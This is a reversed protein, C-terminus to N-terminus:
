LTICPTKCLKEFFLNSNFGIQTLAKEIAKYQQPNDAKNIELVRNEILAIVSSQMAAENLIVESHSAIIIQSNVEAAVNNLLKFIQRQRIIELHADPEDLLLITSPHAYMYALLLLTQQFGRGAASIERLHGNEKYKLQLLGTNQLEPTQLEIGFAAKLHEVLRQWSSTKKDLDNRDIDQQLIDLCINRLVESTRGEGLKRLISGRTLRDEELSLGALVQVFGFRVVSDTRLLKELIEHGNKIEFSLSERNEHKFVLTSLWNEGNVEGEVAIEIFISKANETEITADLWLDKTDFIPSNVVDKRNITLISNEQKEANEINNLYYTRVGIEWLCLAQLMSTKGSNNPGVIVVANSLNFSIDDLKKLNKISVKTIM